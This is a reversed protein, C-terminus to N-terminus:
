LSFPCIITDRDSVSKPFIRQSSTTQISRNEGDPSSFLATSAKRPVVICLRAWASSISLEERKESVSWAIKAFVLKRIGPGSSYEMSVTEKMSAPCTSVVKLSHGSLLKVSKCLRSRAKGFIYPEPYITNTLMRSCRISRSASITSSIELSIAWYLLFSLRPSSMLSSNRISMFWSCSLVISMRSFITSLCRMTDLM